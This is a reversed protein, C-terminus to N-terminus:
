RGSLAEDLMRVLTDRDYSFPHDGNLQV